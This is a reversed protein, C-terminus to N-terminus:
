RQSYLYAAIDRAQQDGVGLDPMATGPSVAQPHQIWRTINDPTNPLRGALYQRDAVGRLPVAVTATGGRIGPVEHCAVCGFRVLETRGQEVHGGTLM